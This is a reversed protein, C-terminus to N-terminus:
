PVIEQTPSNDIEDILKFNSFRGAALHEALLAASDVEPFSEIVEPV